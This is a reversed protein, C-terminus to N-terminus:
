IMWRWNGERGGELAGVGGVGKKHEKIFPVHTVRGQRRRIYNVGEGGSRKYEKTYPLM